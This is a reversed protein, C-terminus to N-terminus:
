KSTLTAAVTEAAAAATTPNLTAQTAPDPALPSASGASGGADDARRGVQRGNGHTVPRNATEKGRRGDM